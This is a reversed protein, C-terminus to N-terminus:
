ALELLAAAPPNALYELLRAGHKRVWGEKMNCSRCLLGRVRGTDHCHDIHTATSPWAALPKGCVACNGDQAAFLADILEKVTGRRQARINAKNAAYKANRETSLRERHRANFEQSKARYKEPNQARQLRMYAAKDARREEKTKAM